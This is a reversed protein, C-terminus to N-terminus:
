LWFIKCDSWIKCCKFHKEMPELANKYKANRQKVYTFFGGAFFEKQVHPPPAHLIFIWTISCTQVHWPCLPVATPDQVYQFGPGQVPILLCVCVVSFMIKGCSRQRATFIGKCWMYCEQVRETKLNASHSESWRTHPSRVTDSHLSNCHYRRPSGTYNYVLHTYNTNNPVGNWATEDKQM